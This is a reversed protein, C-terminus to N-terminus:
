MTFNLPRSAAVFHKTLFSLKLNALEEMSLQVVLQGFLSELLCGLATQKCWLCKKERRLGPGILSTAIKEYIETSFGQRYNSFVSYYPPPAIFLTCGWGITDWTYRHWNSNCEYYLQFQRPSRESNVTKMRARHIKIVNLSTVEIGIKAPLKRYKM